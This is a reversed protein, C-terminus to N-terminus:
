EIDMDWSFDFQERKTLALDESSWQLRLNGKHDVRGEAVIFLPLFYIFGSAVLNENEFVTKGGKLFDRKERRNDTGIFM